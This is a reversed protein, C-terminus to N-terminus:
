VPSRPDQEGVVGSVKCLFKVVRVLCCRVSVVERWDSSVEDRRHNRVASDVNARLRGDGDEAQQM